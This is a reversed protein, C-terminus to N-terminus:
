PLWRVARRTGRSGNPQPTAKWATDGPAIAEHTDCNRLRERLDRIQSEQQSLSRRLDTTADELRQHRNNAVWLLAVIGLLLVFVVTLLSYVLSRSASLM